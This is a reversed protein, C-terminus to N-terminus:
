NQSSIPSMGFDLFAFDVAETIDNLGPIFVTMSMNQLYASTKLDFFLIFYAKQLPQAM